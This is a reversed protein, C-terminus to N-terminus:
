LFGITLIFAWGVQSDENAFPDEIGQPNAPAVKLRIVTVIKLYPTLDGRIFMILLLVSPPIVM